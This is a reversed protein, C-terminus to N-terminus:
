DHMPGKTKNRAAPLETRGNLAGTAFSIGAMALAVLPSDTVAEGAM